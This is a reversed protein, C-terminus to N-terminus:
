ILQKGKGKVEIDNTIGCLGAELVARADYSGTNVYRKILCFLRKKIM